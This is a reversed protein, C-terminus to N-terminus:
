KASFLFSTCCMSCQAHVEFCYAFPFVGSGLCSSYIGNGQFTWFLCIQLSLLCMLPQRPSPPLHFIVRFPYLNDDPSLLFTKFDSKLSLHVVTFKRFFIVSNYSNIQLYSLLAAKNVLSLFPFCSLHGQVSSHIFLHDHIM